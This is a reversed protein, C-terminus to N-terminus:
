EKHERWPEVPVRFATIVPLLREIEIEQGARRLRVRMPETLRGRWAAFVEEATAVPTGAVELLEDGERLGYRYAFGNPEIHAIRTGELRVQNMLNPDDVDRHIFVGVPYLAAVPNLRYPERVAAVIQRATNEHIFKPLLAAFDEVTPGRQEPDWRPDNILARMFDDLSRGRGATRIARDLWAAVILGGDYVLHRAAPDAFFLPGGAEVLSLKGFHANYTARQMKDGLTAAFEEWTTLGLRACVLYAYYDTFGENICRVEDAMAAQATAWTHYFEHAILHGIRATGQSALRPDVALVMSHTKPSGGTGGTMPPGFVFLYRGTPPRGFLALEHEVIAAIPQVVDAEIAEQGPAFLVTGLFGNVRIEHQNWRGVAILDNSLSAASPVVFQMEPALPWPARVEWGDPAVVKVSIARARVDRPYIILPGTGLLAHDDAVFPFEFEDGAARVSELDRHTLPVGYCLELDAPGETAVVWTYPDRRTVRLERGAARVTPPGTLLPEPPRAYAYDTNMTLVLETPMPNLGTLNAVIEVRKDAPPALTLRYHWHAAPQSTPQTTPQTQAQDAAWASGGAVMAPLLAFALWRPGTLQQRPM